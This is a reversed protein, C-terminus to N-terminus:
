TNFTWEGSTSDYYLSNTPMGVRTVQRIPKIYLAGAITNNFASSTGFVITNSGGANYSASTGISINHSRKFYRGSHYGISISNSCTATNANCSAIYGVAINNDGPITAKLTDTGISIINSSNSIGDGSRSGVCINTDNTQYVTKYGVNISKKTSNSINFNNTDEPITVDNINTFNGNSSILTCGDEGIGINDYNTLDIRKPGM